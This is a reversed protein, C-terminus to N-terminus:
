LNLLKKDIAKIVKEVTAESIVDDDIKFDAKVIDTEKIRNDKINFTGNELIFKERSEVFIGNTYTFTNSDGNLIYVKIKNFNNEELYNDVKKKTGWWLDHNGKLFIKNGKLKNNIFEFDKYCEDLKLAWCIDGAVIVTDEDKVISNWNNLLREIHNDWGEFIDMPKDVGISLHLDAICFLSMNSVWHIRLM